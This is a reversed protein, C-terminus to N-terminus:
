LPNGERGELTVLSTVRRAAAAAGHGAGQRQRRDARLAQARRWGGRPLLSQWCPRAHAPARATLCLPGRGTRAHTRACKRTQIGLKRMKSMQRGAFAKRHDGVRDVTEVEALLQEAHPGPMTGHSQALIRHREDRYRCPWDRLIPDVPQPQACSSPGRARARARVLVRHQRRVERRSRASRPHPPIRPSALPHPPCMKQPLSAFGENPRKIDRWSSLYHDMYETEAPIWSEQPNSPHSPRLTECVTDTVRAFPDRGSDVM